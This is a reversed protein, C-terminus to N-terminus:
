PKMWVSVTSPQMADAIISRGEIVADIDVRDHLSSIFDSMVREADYRSRNFRRDVLGQVRRRLPNFLAAVGLTTTAVVLPESFRTGVFTAALAVVGALLGVVIGYSVTRSILRDIDYLRYRTIALFISGPIAAWLEVYSPHNPVSAGIAALSGGLGIALMLFGMRVAGVRLVLIAGLVPSAVAWALIGVDGVGDSMLITILTAAADASLATILLVWVALRM